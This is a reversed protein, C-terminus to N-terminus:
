FDFRVALQIRRPEGTAVIRGFFPGFDPYFLPIGYNPHNFLNFAQARLEIAQGERIPFRRHLAFDFLVNGPGPIINRGANGFTFPAPARFADTNFWRDVTRQNRPLSISQGEVVDPRNPTGSNAFDSFFYFPNLPTGDQMTLIGSSQWHGLVARLFSPSPLDYTFGVSLRRRVDFFSLGRELRLNREDQATASDGLGKLATDADDISKSWVFSALFGLNRAFRREAKIQMSHYSSNALHQTQVIPGLQPWTRLLQLDGPRPPLNEGTEIHAPTNFIRAKGLKTGKSGLYGIELLVKGPLQQQLNLTWQQMNPTRAKRDLGYFSPQGTSATQPFGNALTLVPAQTGDSSNNENTVGNRVLNYVETAIEPTFYVGYGARLVADFRQLSRVPIRWALGVRPSFNNRDPDVATASRVLRPPAPLTSYDLNLVNNRIERFPSFYEYRLGANLTLRNNVRWDNQAYGAYTNQRFYAQANGISRTTSQPFGLLFDAFPDGTPTSSTPDSTFAGTFAYQGRPLQSQRYNLQFYIGQFGFKWTQSGKTLTIGESLHWLNDRQTQPRIPTDTLMNFNTVFFVPLGFNYPDSPFSDIGLDRTDDTNFASEPLELVKLRAFAFRAENLWSRGSFTHGLVVQQARVREQTPREPFSGLRNRADNITYRVFMRSRDLFEHDVRGSINDNRNENPKSDLYNFAGGVPGNPLPEFKDLFKRAIPDIRAPPIINNPFPRRQGTVPDITLPDFITTRGRFDGSRVASDPVLNRSTKATQGRLGEYTAFFFTARFPTRGGLSGGFQDQRFVPRPLTSDDFLNRADLAQNRYFEFVNGHFHQSGARTVIDAVGGGSQAFEASPLSAVIRFEQVSELPPIVAIARTNLDTNMGGDLLYTNMTSRAGNIPANLAVAGRSEQVDNIIDHVFGGLQRPIAGPGLTVLSIVNRGDLPLDRIARSDLQYGVSADSAQTLSVDGTITVSEEQLGVQLELDLQSKQNVELVIGQVVLTRFGQKEASVAYRGPLLESIHYTGDDSTLVERSFGTAEHRATVKADSIRASVQDKVTGLLSASSVQGQSPVVVLVLLLMVFFIAKM